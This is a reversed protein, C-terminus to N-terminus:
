AARSSRPAAGRPPHHRRRRRPRRRHAGRRPRQPPGPVADIIAVRGDEVTFDLQYADGLGEAAVRAAACLEDLATPALEELSPDHEGAALRDARTLRRVPLAGPRRDAGQGQPRFEGLCAPAGTRSDVTQVHGSGSVGPGLGFALEQVVLGLGADKPAGKAERLIRASPTTWARAM